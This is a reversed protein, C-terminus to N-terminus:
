GHNEPTCSALETALEADTFHLSQKALKVLVAATKETFGKITQDDGLTRKVIFLEIDEADVQMQVPTAVTFAGVSVSPAAGYGDLCRGDSTKVFVHRITGPFDKYELTDENILASTGSAADFLGFIPWNTLRHIALALVGCNGAVLQALKQDLSKEAHEM